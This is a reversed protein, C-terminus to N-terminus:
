QSRRLAPRRNVLTARRSPPISMGPPLRSPPQEAIAEPRLAYRSQRRYEQRAARRDQARTRCSTVSRTTCWGSVSIRRARRAELRAAVNVGDGFIDDNDVIVDGLNIGIRLKIRQEDFLGPERDMTNRQM